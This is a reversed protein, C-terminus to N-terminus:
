FRACQNRNRGSARKCFRIGIGVLPGDVFKIGIVVLPGDVFKIGILVLPVNVFFYELRMVTM